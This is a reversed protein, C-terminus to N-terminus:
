AMGGLIQKLLALNGGQSASSTTPAVGAQAGGGIGAGLLSGGLGTLQSFVAQKAAQDALGAAINSNQRSAEAGVLTGTQQRKANIMGEIEKLLAQNRASLSTGLQSTDIGLDQMIGENEKNYVDQRANLGRELATNQLDRSGSAYQSAIQVPLNALQATAAGRNLGGGAAAAERQAAQLEPLQSFLSQKLDNQRNQVLQSNQPDFNQLFSSAATRRADAAEAQAADTGQNFMGLQNETQPRLQGVQRQEFDFQQNALNNIGSPDFRPAKKRGFLSGALGAGAIGAGAAILPAVM